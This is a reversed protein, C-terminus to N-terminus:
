KTAASAVLADAIVGADPAGSFSGDRQWYVGCAGGSNCRGGGAVDHGDVLISPSALSVAYAPLDADDLCWERWRPTMEALVFAARLRERALEVHPCDGHFFLEVAPRTM